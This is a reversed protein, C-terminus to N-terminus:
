GAHTPNAASRLSDTHPHFKSLSFRFSFTFVSVVLVFLFVVCIHTMSDLGSFHPDLSSVSYCLSCCFFKIKKM